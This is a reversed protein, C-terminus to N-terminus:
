RQNASFYVKNKNSQQRNVFSKINMKKDSSDTGTKDTQERVEFLQSGNNKAINELSFTETQIFFIHNRKNNCCYRRGVSKSSV